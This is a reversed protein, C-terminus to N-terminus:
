SDNESPCTGKAAGKIESTILTIASAENRIIFHWRRAEMVEPGDQLTCLTGAYVLSGLNIVAEGIKLGTRCLFVVVSGISAPTDRTLLSRRAKTLVKTESDEQPVLGKLSRRTECVLAACGSGGAVKNRGKLKGPCNLCKWKM